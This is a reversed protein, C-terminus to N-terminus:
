APGSSDYVNQVHKILFSIAAEWFEQLFVFWGLFFVMQQNRIKEKLM